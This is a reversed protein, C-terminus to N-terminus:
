NPPSAKLPVGETPPAAEIVSLGRTDVGFPPPHCSERNQGTHGASQLNSRTPSTM